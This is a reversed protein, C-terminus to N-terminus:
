ETTYTGKSISNGEGGLDRRKVSGLSCFVKAEWAEIYLVSLRDRTQVLLSCSFRFLSEIVRRRIRTVMLRNKYTKGRIKSGVRSSEAM